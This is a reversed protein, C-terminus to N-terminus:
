TGAVRDPMFAPRAADAEELTTSRGEAWTADFAHNGLRARAIALAYDYDAGNSPNLRSGMADVIAPTAGFM